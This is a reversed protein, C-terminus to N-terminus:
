ATETCWGSVRFLEGLLQGLAEVKTQRPESASFIAVRNTHLVAGVGVWLGDCNREISKWWMDGGVCWAILDIESEIHRILAEECTEDGKKSPAPRSNGRAYSGLTNVTIDDASM